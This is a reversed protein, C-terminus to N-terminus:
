RLRKLRSKLIHDVKSLMILTNDLEDAHMKGFIETELSEFIKSLSKKAILGAETLTILTRRSDIADDFRDLLNKRVLIEIAKSATSPRVNVRQAAESISIIEKSNLTIIIESQGNQLDFQALKLFILSRTCKSISSLIHFLKKEDNSLEADFLEQVAVERFEFRILSTLRM